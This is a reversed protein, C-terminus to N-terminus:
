NLLRLPAPIREKTESTAYGYMMGQDGAGQLKSDQRDVGLAIDSSHKSINEIVNFRKTNEFDVLTENVVPSYDINAKTIVEGFIYLVVLNLTMM